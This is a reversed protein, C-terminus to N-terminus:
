QTLEERQALELRQIMEVILIDIPDTSREQAYRDKDKRLWAALCVFAIKEKYTNLEKKFLPKLLVFETWLRDFKEYQKNREHEDLQVMESRPLRYGLHTRIQIMRAKMEHLKQHADFGWFERGAYNKNMMLLFFCLKKM